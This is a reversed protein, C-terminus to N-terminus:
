PVAKVTAPAPTSSSSGSSAPAGSGSSSPGSPTAGATVESGPPLVYATATVTGELNNGPVTRKSAAGGSSTSSSDSAPALKFSQITLLRGNVAVEGTPSAVAYGQVTTLLHYLDVFSGNFTFTFPMQEFGTGSSKEKSSKSSASAGSGTGPAISAFEVSRQNSAQDLEYILASVEQSAPVAKGLSVVSAYAETYKAQASRAQSLETQATQVQKQASEVNSSLKSAKSREPSVVKVWGAGVIVLALIGVVVLRDRGTM